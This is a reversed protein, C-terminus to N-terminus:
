RQERWLRLVGPNAHITWEDRKTFGPAQISTELFILSSASLRAPLQLPIADKHDDHVAEKFIPVAPQSSITRRYTHLVQRAKRLGGVQRFSRAQFPVPLDQDVSVEVSAHYVPTPSRNTVTCELFFPKSIETDVGAFEAQHIADDRGMFSLVVDLDPTTSRRMVDRIEYDEMPVAHLEFRKSYKHDQAQHPGTLTPEVSVVFGYGKESLQIRQVTVRDIRPQFIQTLWERTIKDDVVGDDVRAPKHTKKDEEIGYIIQGGASNAMASVDKCLELVDKSDRTLAPSAKYELTLTEEIKADVMRQFDARDKFEFDPMIQSGTTEPNFAVIACRLTTRLRFVVLRKHIDRIQRHFRRNQRADGRM